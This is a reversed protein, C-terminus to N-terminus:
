IVKNKAGCLDCYVYKTQHMHKIHNNLRGEQHFGRGCYNCILAFEMYHESVHQEFACASPIRKRLCLHCDGYAKDAHHTNIHQHKSVLMAFVENCIYCKYTKAVQLENPKCTGTEDNHRKLQTALDFTKGCIKCKHPNEGINHKIFMHYQRNIESDFYVRRTCLTCSAKSAVKRLKKVKIKLPKDPRKVCRQTHRKFKQETDFTKQCVNCIKTEDIYHEDLFHQELTEESIHDTTSFCVDCTFTKKHTKKVHARYSNWYNKDEIDSIFDCTHCILPNEGIDHLIYNHHKLHLEQAFRFPPDCLLCMYKQRNHQIMHKRFMEFTLKPNKHDFVEVCKVCEIIGSKDQKIQRILPDDIEKKCESEIVLPVIEELCINSEMVPEEEYIINEFDLKMVETKVIEVQDAIELEQPEVKVNLLDHFPDNEQLLM